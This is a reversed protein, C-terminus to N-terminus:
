RVRIERVGTASWEARAKDYHLDVQWSTSRTPQDRVTLDGHLLVQAATGNRLQVAADRQKVFTVLGGPPLHQSRVIGRARWYAAKESFDRQNIERWGELTIPLFLRLLVLSCILVVGGILARKGWRRKPLRRTVLDTVPQWQDLGECWFLADENILGSNLLHDIHRVTYPGRQEGNIHLYFAEHM